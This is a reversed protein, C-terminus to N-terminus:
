PQKPAFEQAYVANVYITLHKMQRGGVRDLLPYRKVPNGSVNKKEPLTTHIDARRAYTHLNEAKAYNATFSKDQIVKALAVLDPDDLKSYDVSKMFEQEGYSLKGVQYEADTAGAVLANIREQVAVSAKKASHTRLFKEFRNKGLVVLTYGEGM